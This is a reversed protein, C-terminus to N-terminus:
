CIKRRTHGWYEIFARKEGTGADIQWVLSTNNGKLGYTDNFKLYREIFEDWYDSLGMKGRLTILDHRFKNIPALKFNYEKSALYDDNLKNFWAYWQESEKNSKIGTEPLRWKKRLRLIEQQFVPFKLIQEARQKPYRIKKVKKIRM